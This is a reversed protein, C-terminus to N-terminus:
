FDEQHKKLWEWLSRNTHGSYSGELQFVVGSADQARDEGKLGARAAVTESLEDSTVLAFSRGLWFCGPYADDIRIKAPGNPEKLVISFVAM